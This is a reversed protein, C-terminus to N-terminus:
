VAGTNIDAVVVQHRRRCGRGVPTTELRPSRRVLILWCTSQFHAPPPSTPERTCIRMPSAEAGCVPAASRRVDLLRQSCEAGTPDDGDAVSARRPPSPRRPTSSVHIPNKPAVRLLASPEFHQTITDREEPQREPRLSLEGMPHRVRFQRVVVQLDRLPGGDAGGSHCRLEFGAEVSLM